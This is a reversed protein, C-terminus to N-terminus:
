LKSSVMSVKFDFMDQIAMFDKIFINTDIPKKLM